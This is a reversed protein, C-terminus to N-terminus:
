NSLRKPRLRNEIALLDHLLNGEVYEVRSVADRGAGATIRVSVVNSASIAAAALARGFARLRTATTDSWIRLIIKDRPSDESLQAGQLRRGYRGSRSPM